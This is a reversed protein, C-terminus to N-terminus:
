ADAQNREDRQDSEGHKRQLDDREQQAAEHEFVDAQGRHARVHREIPAM